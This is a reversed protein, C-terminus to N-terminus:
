NGREPHEGEHHLYANGTRPDPRPGINVSTWSNSDRPLDLPQKKAEVLMQHDVKMPDVGIVKSELPFTEWITM